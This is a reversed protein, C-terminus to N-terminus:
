YHICDYGINNCTVREPKIRAVLTVWCEWVDPILVANGLGPFLRSVNVRLRSACSSAKTAGNQDLMFNASEVTLLTVGAICMGIRWNGVHQRSSKWNAVWIYDNHTHEVVIVLVKHPCRGHSFDTPRRDASLCNSAIQRCVFQQRSFTSIHIVPNINSINWEIQLIPFSNNTIRWHQKASHKRTNVFCSWCMLIYYNSQVAYM